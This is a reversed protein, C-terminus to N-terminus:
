PLVADPHIALILSRLGQALRPGPRTILKDDTPRIAGERVAAMGGWGPRDRVVEATVGFAADGLVIVEPDAEVLRELSIEYSAGSGSTIPDAGALVLMEALFSEDAPGYVEVTADIEYFVRPRDEAAVADTLAAIEERMSRALEAGEGPVGTAQAILEIDTFVAELTGAYVVVVPIGLSRMRVIGDPPTDGNGGAIVLDAGLDVIQEIDVTGFAGVDPLQTAEAPFDSASDTGVVRDGLGLAFATETSAATLTVIRRPEAPIIVATGEDDTVEIPFVAATPEPIPTASPLASPTPAAASPSTSTETPGVCGAALSLAALFAAAKALFRRGRAELSFSPDVPTRTV